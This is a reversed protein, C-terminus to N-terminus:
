RSRSVLFGFEVGVTNVLRRQGRFSKQLAAALELGRIRAAVGLHPTQLALEMGEDGEWKVDCLLAAIVRSRRKFFDCTGLGIRALIHGSQLAFHV